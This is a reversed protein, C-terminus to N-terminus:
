KGSSLKVNTGMIVDRSNGMIYAWFSDNGKYGLYKWLFAVASRNNIDMVADPDKSGNAKVMKGMVGRIMLSFDSVSQHVTGRITIMKRDENGTDLKLIKLVNEKWQFEESNIFLLPQDVHEYCEEALPFMWADLAVGVRFRKDEAMAKIITAAGFSHGMVGCGSQMDLVDAFQATSFSPDCQNLIHRGLNLDRLLDYAKKVENARIINQDSRIEFEDDEKTPRYYPLWEEEMVLPAEDDSDDVQSMNHKNYFYTAGASQDRHELAAVVFGHSALDMCLYSYTTRNGGLGHSFIVVPFKRGDERLIPAQWVVPVKLERPMNDILKGYVICATYGHLYEVRPIWRPWLNSKEKMSGKAIPYYLRMFVGIRSSDCMLDAVGVHEWGSPYPIHKNKKFPSLM